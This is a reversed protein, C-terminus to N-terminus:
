LVVIRGLGLLVAAATPGRCGFCHFAASCCHVLTAAATFGLTCWLHNRAEGAAAGDPQRLEAATQAALGAFFLAPLLHTHINVTENHLSAASCACQWWSLGTERYGATVGPIRQDPPM